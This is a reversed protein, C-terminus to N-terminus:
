EGRWLGHLNCYERAWVGDEEIPFFAEPVGGPDLYQRYVKNGAILEVWVIWHEPAMPHPASGVKVIYGGAVKGVVPVHKEKAADTTNAVLLKLPNGCCSLECEPECSCAAHAVEIVFDCEQCRYIDLRNAVETAEKETTEGPVGPATRMSPVGHM